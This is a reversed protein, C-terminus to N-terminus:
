TTPFFDALNLPIGQNAIQMPAPTDFIVVMRVVGAADELWAGGIDNGIVPDTAGTDWQVLPSVIMYGSGPAYIPAFWTALTKAVYTTFTAEAATLASKPTSSTPVLSSIFLKLVSAAYVTRRETANQLCAELTYFVQTSM